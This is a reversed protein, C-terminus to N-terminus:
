SIVLGVLPLLELKVLAIPLTELQSSPDDWKLAETQAILVDIDQTSVAM